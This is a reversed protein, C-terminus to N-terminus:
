VAASIEENWIGKQVLQEVIVSVDDPCLPYGDGFDKNRDFDSLEKTVSVHTLGENFRYVM